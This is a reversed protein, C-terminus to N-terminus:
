SQELKGALYKALELMAYKEVKAEADSNYNTNTNVDYVYSNGATDQISEIGAVQVNNQELFAELDAVFPPRFEESIEFKAKPQGANGDTPCFRDEISCADAPCM